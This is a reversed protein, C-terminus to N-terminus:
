RGWAAQISLLSSSSSASIHTPAGGESLISLGAPWTHGGGGYVANSFPRQDDGTSHGCDRTM